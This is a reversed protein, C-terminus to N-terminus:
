KAPWEANFAAPDKEAAEHCLKAVGAMRDIPDADPYDIAVQADVAEFCRKYAEDTSPACATLTLAAAALAVLALARNM